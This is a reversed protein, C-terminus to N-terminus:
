KIDLRKGRVLRAGPVDHGDKIAQKILSKDPQYTAPIECMYELPILEPQEIAVSEPNDRITLNFYPSEIKPLGCREMNDMLYKRVHDARAQIAKRRKAMAEEAMKIQEATAELNRVFCAVSICKQELPLSISELTDAVVEHPLDLDALQDATQRFEAALEYLTINM